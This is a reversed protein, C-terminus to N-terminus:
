NKLHTDFFSLSRQMATNFNATINHDDGQYIFLEGPKGATQLHDYLRQALEVPVSTDGTAHHIQIPGGLDALYATASISNWFDPNSEPTGYTEVLSVRWGPGRTGPWPSPSPQGPRGRRWVELLDPYSGVVGAWIVGAKLNTNVVMARQTIYGGMSHGWMGIRNEDVEQHQELSAVANLVDIVYKPSSYAGSPEGESDGHGRYDPKIVVYGNRAFADVYAQYRETTRYQDPPIYGHNFVIAPWGETPREGSPITLLAFQKLGESQYSVVYQRYSARAPLTEEVVLQSGPYQQARLWEISLEHPAAPTEGETVESLPVDLASFPLRPQVRNDQRFYWGGAIVVVIGLFVLVPLFIKTERSIMAGTYWSVTVETM